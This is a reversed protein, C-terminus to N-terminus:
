AKHPCAATNEKKPCQACASPHKYDTEYFGHGKFIIGAGVSIKRKLTPKQCSPCITKALEKVSHFIEFHKGCAECIYDYTPM